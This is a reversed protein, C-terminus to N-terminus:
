RYAEMIEIPTPCGNAPTDRLAAAELRASRIGEAGAKRANEVDATLRRGDAELKAVAENQIEILANAKALQAGVKESHRESAALRLTQIGLGFLLLAALGAKWYKLLM